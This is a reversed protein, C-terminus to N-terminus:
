TVHYRLLVDGGRHHVGILRTERADRILEIADGSLPPLGEPDAMLRPAIFVALEDACGSRVMDSMLGPGAEVLVTSLDHERYLVQMLDTLQFRGNVVPRGILTVGRTRLTGAEPSALRSEDCILLIPADAITACLASAPPTRLQRDLIVRTATRRRRVDRATLRPDDALVTGIGTMIADVRGRERHVLRRSLPSSIWKSDGTRTAIRGDLTQAWKLTIWPRQKALWTQFPAILQASPEHDLVDVEIGGARLHDVGGAADPNPDRAGIVVRKIGAALLAEACPPTKGVHTCPELTVHVTGDAAAAGARELARVEAHAGGFRVHSEVSRVRGAEDSVVCGVMPNPEVLGHGRLAQRAARDLLQRDREHTTM